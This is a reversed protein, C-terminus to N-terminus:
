VALLSGTEAEAPRGRGVPEACDPAAVPGGAPASRSAEEAEAAGPEGAGGGPPRDAGPLALLLRLRPGRREFFDISQPDGGHEGCVGLHLDPRTERGRECAM